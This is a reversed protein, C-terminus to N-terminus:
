YDTCAINSVKCNSLQLILNPESQDTYNDNGLQGFEDSGYSYVYGSRTVILCHDRGCAIQEVSICLGPKVPYSDFTSFSFQLLENNEAYVLVHDGWCKFQKVKHTVAKNISIEEGSIDSFIWLTGSNDLMVVQDDNTDIEKIPFVLTPPISGQFYQTKINNYWKFM